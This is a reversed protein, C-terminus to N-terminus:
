AVLEVTSLEERFPDSTRRREVSRVREVGIDIKKEEVTQSDVVVAENWRRNAIEHHQRNKATESPDDDGKVQHEVRISM